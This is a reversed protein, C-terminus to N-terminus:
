SLCRSMMILKGHSISRLFNLFFSYDTCVSRVKEERKRERTETNQDLFILLDRTQLVLEMPTRPKPKFLGKMDQVCARAPFRRSLIRHLSSSSSSSPKILPILPSSFPIIITFSLYFYLHFRKRQGQSQKRTTISRNNASWSM